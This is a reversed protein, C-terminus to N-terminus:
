RPPWIPGLVELADSTLLGFFHRKVCDHLEDIENPSQVWFESTSTVIGIGDVSILLGTPQEQDPYQVTANPAIEVIILLEGSEIETRFHFGKEPAPRGEIEFKANLLGLQGGQSSPVVNLGKLSYREVNQILDTDKLYTALGIIHDRFSHWGEYPRRQSIAVVHDGVLIRRSGGSFQRSPLYKLNPDKERIERPVNALPLAEVREYSSQLNRYLLGPLLDGVSERESAFRLEFIAEVLPPRELRKPLLKM